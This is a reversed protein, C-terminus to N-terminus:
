KSPKWKELLYNLKDYDLPYWDSHQDVNKKVINVDNNTYNNNAIRHVSQKLEPSMRSNKSDSALKTTRTKVGYDTLGSIDYAVNNVFRKIDDKDLGDKEIDNDLRELSGIFGTLTGAKDGYMNHAIVSMSNDLVSSVGGGKELNQLKDILSQIKSTIIKNEM